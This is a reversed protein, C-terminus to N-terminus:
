VEAPYATRAVSMASPSALANGCAPLLAPQSTCYLDRGTNEPGGAAQAPSPRFVGVHRVTPSSSLPCIM